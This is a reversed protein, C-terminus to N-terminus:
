WGQGVRARNEVDLMVGLEGQKRWGGALVMWGYEGTEATVSPSWVGTM